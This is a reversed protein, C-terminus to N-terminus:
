PNVKKNSHGSDVDICSIASAPWDVSYINQEEYALLVLANLNVPASIKM